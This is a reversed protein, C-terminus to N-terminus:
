GFARGVGGRLARRRRRRPGFHAGSMVVMCFFGGAAVSLGCGRYTLCAEHAGGGWCMADAPVAVDVGTSVVSFVSCIRWFDM